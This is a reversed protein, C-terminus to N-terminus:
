RARQSAIGALTAQTGTAMRQLMAQSAQLARAGSPLLRYHRRRRGGREPTPEGIWSTVYGRTELRDFATYAAGPSVRRGTRSEIEIAVDVSAAEGGLRVLAFLLLQEFEGISDSM